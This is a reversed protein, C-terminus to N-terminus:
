NGSWEEEYLELGKVEVWGSDLGRYIWFYNPDLRLYELKTWFERCERVVNTESEMKGPYVGDGFWPGQISLFTARRLRPMYFRTSLAWNLDGARVNLSILEPCHRSIHGMTVENWSDGDISLHELPVAGPRILSSIDGTVRWRAVQPFFARLNRVPRENCFAPVLDARGEFTELDPVIDHPVDFVSTLRTLPLKLTRIRSARKLLDILGDGMGQTWIARAEVILEKLVDTNFQFVQHDCLGNVSTLFISDIHLTELEPLMLAAFFSSTKPLGYLDVRLYKLSPFSLAIPDEVRNMNSRLLVLRELHTCEQFRSLQAPSITAARIWLERTSCLETLTQYLRERVNVEMLAPSNIRVKAVMEKLHPKCELVDALREARRQGPGSLGQIVITEFLLPQCIRHFARCTETLPLISTIRAMDYGIQGGGPTKLVGAWVVLMLWATRIVGSRKGGITVGYRESSLQINPALNGRSDIGNPFPPHPQAFVEATSTM